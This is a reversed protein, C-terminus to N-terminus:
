GMVRIELTKMSGGFHLEVGATGVLGGIEFGWWGTWTVVNASGVRANCRKLDLRYRM